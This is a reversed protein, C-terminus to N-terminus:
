SLNKIVQKLRLYTFFNIYPKNHKIFKIISKKNHTEHSMEKILLKMYSYKTYKINPFYKKIYLIKRRQGKLLRVKILKKMARLGIHENFLNSHILLRIMSRDIVDFNKIIKSLLALKQKITLKSIRHLLTNKSSYPIETTNATLIKVVKEIRKSGKGEKFDFHYPVERGEIWENWKIRNVYEDGKYYKVQHQLFSVIEKTNISKFAYKSFYNRMINKMVKEGVEREINLMFFSGKEYAIANFSIIPDGKIIPSLTECRKVGLCVTKTNNVIANIKKLGESMEDLYFDKGLFIRDAKRNLYTAIGENIWYSEWNKNTVLNGAWFHALEHTVTKSLSGDKSLMNEAITIMFPTENANTPFDNPTIVFIIKEFQFPYYQSYFNIIDDCRNFTAFLSKRKKKIVDSQAYITCMSGEHPTFTDFHGIAFNINYTPIPKDFSFYFQIFNTNPITRKYRQAGSFLVTYGEEVTILASTVVKLSPTDQCPFFTRAFIPESHTYIFTSNKDRLMAKNSFHVGISNKNTHYYIVIFDEGGKNCRSLFEIQLQEGISSNFNKNIKYSLPLGNSNFITVISLKRIDLLIKDTSSNCKYSLKVNGKIIKQHPNIQIDFDIKTQVAENTDSFSSHDYVNPVLQSAIIYHFIIVAVVLKM